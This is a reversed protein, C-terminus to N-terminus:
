QQRTLAHLQSHLYEVRGTVGRVVTYSQWGAAPSGVAFRHGSLKQIPEERASRRLYLAGRRKVIEVSYGPASYKGPWDALDVDSFDIASAKAGAPANLFLRTAAAVTRPLLGGSRNTLTIVAFQREPILRLFAGYGPITGHHELVRVGQVDRVFLGYGTHANDEGSHVPAYEDSMKVMVAPPLVQNGDLRGKNVFAIAFRTLDRLSAMLFGAPAFGTNDAFPRVVIAGTPTLNHGQALPRTMAVTTEFTATRMGLPRLLREEVLEAYPQGTAHEALYGALTMGPNSYSFVRGPETFFYEDTWSRVTRALGNADRSGWAPAEDRLGATHTLLQHATVRALGRPLGLICEGIPADLSFKGEQALITVTAATFVKTLTGIRFLMDPTVPTGTEISGVGFGRAFVVQNGSVIAIAAGPTRTDVLEAAIIKELATSDVIGQGAASTGVLLHAAALFPLFCRRKSM